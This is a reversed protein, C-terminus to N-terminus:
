EAISRDIECRAKYDLAFSYVDMSGNIETNPVSKVLYGKYYVRTMCGECEDYNVKYGDGLAEQLRSAWKIGERRSEM